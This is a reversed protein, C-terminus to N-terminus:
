EDEKEDFVTVGLDEPIPYYNETAEGLKKLDKGILFARLADSATRYVKPNSSAGTKFTNPGLLLNRLKMLTKEGPVHIDGYGERLIIAAHTLKASKSPSNFLIRAFLAVVASRATGRKHSRFHADAGEIVEKYTEIFDWLDADSYAPRYIGGAAMAGAINKIREATTRELKGALTMRQALTRAKGRDANQIVADSVDVALHMTITVDALIVAQTRQNANCRRGRVDMLIPDPSLTWLDLDMEKAYKVILTNTAKRENPNGMNVLEQALTKSVPIPISWIGQYDAPKTKRALAVWDALVYNTTHAPYDGPQVRASDKNKKTAM